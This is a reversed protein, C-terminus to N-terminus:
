CLYGHQGPNLVGTALGSYFLNKAKKYELACLVDHIDITNIIKIDYYLLIQYMNRNRSSIMNFM